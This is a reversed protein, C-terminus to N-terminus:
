DPLENYISKSIRVVNLNSDLIVTWGNQRGNGKFQIRRFDKSKGFVLVGSCCESTNVGNSELAELAVKKAAEMLQRDDRVNNGACGVIFLYLMAVVKTRAM